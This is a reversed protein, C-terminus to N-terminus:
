SRAERALAVGRTSEGERAAAESPAPAPPVPLAAAAAAAAVETRDRHAWLKAAAGDYHLNCWRVYIGTLVPALVIVGAGVLVGLSVRGGAVLRGMLPKDFAVLLIFGFYAILMVATLGIAVRWRRAALDELQKEQSLPHNEPQNPQTM